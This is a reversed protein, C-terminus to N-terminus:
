SNVFNKREYVIGSNFFRVVETLVEEPSILNMCFPESCTSQKNTVDCPVCEAKSKIISFIKPPAARECPQSGYLGIVPTNFANAIHIPLSCGNVLLDAKKVLYGLELLNTKGRLDLVNEPFIGTPIKKSKEGIIIIKKNIKNLGEFFSQWSDLPWDKRAVGTELSCILYNEINQNKLFEDWFIKEELNIEPYYFDQWNKDKRIDIGTGEFFQQAKVNPDFEYNMSNNWTLSKTLWLKRKHPLGIRVKVRAIAYTFALRYSTDVCFVLDANYANKFIEWQSNFNKEFGFAKDIFCCKKTIELSHKNTVVMLESNPFLRKIGMLMPTLIVIDGIGGLCSIIIRKSM